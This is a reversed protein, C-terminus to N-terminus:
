SATQSPVYLVGMRLDTTHGHSCVIFANLWEVWTQSTHVYVANNPHSANPTRSALVCFHLPAPRAAFCCNSSDGAEFVQSWSLRAGHSALCALWHYNGTTWLQVTGCALM